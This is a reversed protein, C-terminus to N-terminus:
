SRSFSKIKRIPQLAAVKLFRNSLEEVAVLWIKKNKKSLNGLPKQIITEVVAVIRAQVAIGVEVMEVVM